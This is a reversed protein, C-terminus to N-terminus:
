REVKALRREVKALRREVKALRREVKLPAPWTTRSCPPSFACAETRDDRAVIYVM